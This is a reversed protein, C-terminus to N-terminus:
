SDFFFKKNDTLKTILANWYPVVHESQNIKEQKYALITELSMGLEKWISNTKEMSASLPDVLKDVAYVFRAEPTFRIEYEHITQTLDELEPFEKEIRSLAQAEREKKGKQAETDGIFTDGAYAEVLDHVLAYKLVLGLNLTLKEASIIYWSLMVVEFTHEATNTVEKEDPRRSVRKVRQVEHLLALFNEIQKLDKMSIFDLM